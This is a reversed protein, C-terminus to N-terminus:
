SWSVQLLQGLLRFTESWQHQHRTLQPQSKLGLQDCHCFRFETCFIVRIYLTKSSGKSVECALGGDEECSEVDKIELSGYSDWQARWVWHSRAWLKLIGGYDERICSRMQWLLVAIHQYWSIKPNRDSHSGWDAKGLFIIRSNQEWCEKTRQRPHLRGPSEQKWTLMDIPATWTWTQNICGYHHSKMFIAERVNRPSLREACKRNRRSKCDKWAGKQLTGQAKPAPTTKYIFLKPNPDGVRCKTWNHNEMITMM